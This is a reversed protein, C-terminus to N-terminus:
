SSILELWEDVSGNLTHLVFVMGGTFEEALQKIDNVAFMVDLPDDKTIIMSGEFLSSGPATSVTASWRGDADQEYEAKITQESITM